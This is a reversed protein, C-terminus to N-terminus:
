VGLVRGAVLGYVRKAGANKLGASANELTAGTACVDDVVLLVPPYKQTILKNLEQVYKKNMKFCDAVNEQRAKKRLRAQPLTAKTRILMPRVSVRDPMESAIARAIRESQNFGRSRLRGAHLPIPILVYERGKFGKLERLKEAMWRGLEDALEVTYHYKLQHIAARAVPNKRYDLAYIVGDLASKEDQKAGAGRRQRSDALKRIKLGSKCDACWFDGEKSCSICVPPFLLDLVPRALRHVWSHLM